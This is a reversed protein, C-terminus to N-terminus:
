DDIASGRRGEVFYQADQLRYSGRAGLDGFRARRQPTGARRVCYEEEFTM